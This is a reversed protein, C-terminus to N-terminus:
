MNFTALFSINLTKQKLTINKKYAYGSPVENLILFTSDNSRNRKVATAVQNVSAM